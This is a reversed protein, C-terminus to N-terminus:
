TKLEENEKKLQSNESLLNSEQREHSAERIAMENKYVWSPAGGYGMKGSQENKRNTSLFVKSLKLSVNKQTM